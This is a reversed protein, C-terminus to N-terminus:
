IVGDPMEPVKEGGLVFGGDLRLTAGTMYDARLLFLAAEAVEEPSGTRGLLTHRLLAEREAEKLLSWGKTSPGHRSDILGLMLENVRISPAAIRAWTETFSSIGRNAATYGDSFLLGAPGSRGTIAAVSSINVVAAQKAQRLLPLCADFVLWKAHLTTDLELQWQERNVPRRYSGHVVPMGGREINNILVHLTGYENAIRRSMAQVSEADRLDAQLTLHGSFEEEMEQVSEPWDFWPLILQAGEATLRRAIARGIGRSAGLVLANKIALNM